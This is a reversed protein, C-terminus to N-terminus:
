RKKTGGYSGNSYSGQSSVGLRKAAGLFPLRSLLLAGLFLGIASLFEKRTMETDIM